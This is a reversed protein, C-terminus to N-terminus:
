AANRRSQNAAIRALEQKVRAILEIRMVTTIGLGEEKYKAEVLDEILGREMDNLAVSTQLRRSVVRKGAVKEM